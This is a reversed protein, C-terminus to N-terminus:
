MRIARTLVAEYQEDTMKRIKAEPIEIIVKKKCPGAEEITVINKLEPAEEEEAGEEQSEVAQDKEELETKQEEEAM